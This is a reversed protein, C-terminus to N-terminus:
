IYCTWIQETPGVGGREEAGRRGFKRTLSPPSESTAKNEKTPETEVETDGSASSSKKYLWYGGLPIAAILAIKWFFRM